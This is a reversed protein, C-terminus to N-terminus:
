LVRSPSRLFSLDVHASFISYKGTHLQQCSPQFLHSFSELLQRGSASLSISTQSPPKLLQSLISAFWQPCLLYAPVPWSHKKQGSHGNFALIAPVSRFPGTNSSTRKLTTGTGAKYGTCLAPVVFVTWVLRYPVNNEVKIRDLSWELSKM